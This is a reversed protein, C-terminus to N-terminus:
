TGGPEPSLRLGMLVEGSVVMMRSRFGWAGLGGEQWGREKPETRRFGREGFLRLSATNDEEAAAFVVRAGQQRFLGLADDLLQRAVGLRRHSRLVALYYVYGVAPDLLELMAVGVLEGAHWAGRVRSVNRLTRKAHWRYIGTFSDVIIPVARERDATALDRVDLTPQEAPTRDRQDETM